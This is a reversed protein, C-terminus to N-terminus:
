SLGESFPVGGIACSLLVVCILIVWFIAIAVGFFAAGSQSLKAGAVILAIQFLV